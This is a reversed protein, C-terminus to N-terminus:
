CLVLNITKKQRKPTANCVFIFSTFVFSFFCVSLFAVVFFLLALCFLSYHLVVFYYNATCSHSGNVRSSITNVMRNSHVDKHLMLVKM